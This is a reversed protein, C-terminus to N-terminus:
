ILEKWSGERGTLSDYIRNAEDLLGRKMEPRAQFDKDLIPCTDGRIVMGCVTTKSSLFDRGWNAVEVCKEIDSFDFGFNSQNEGVTQELETDTGPFKVINTTM